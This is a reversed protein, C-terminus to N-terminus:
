RSFWVDLDDPAPQEPEIEPEEDRLRQWETGVIRDLVASFHRSAIQRLL